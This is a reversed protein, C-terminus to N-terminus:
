YISQVSTSINSSVVFTRNNNDTGTVILKQGPKFVSLDTSSIDSSNITNTNVYASLTTPESGGDTCGDTNQLVLKNTEIDETAHTLYFGNITTNSSEEIKKYENKGFGTLSKNTSVITSNSGYFKFTDRIGNNNFYVNSIQSTTINSTPIILIHNNDGLIAPDQNGDNEARRGNLDTNNLSTNLFISSNSAKDTDITHLIIIFISVPIIEDDLVNDYTAVMNDQVLFFKYLNLTLVIIM